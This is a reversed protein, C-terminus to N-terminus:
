PPQHLVGRSQCPPPPTNCCAKTEATSKLM